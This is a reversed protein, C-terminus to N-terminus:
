EQNLAQYRDTLCGALEKIGDDEIDNKDLILTQLTKFQRANKLIPRLAYISKVTLNNERLDLHALTSSTNDKLKDSLLATVLSEIHGDNLSCCTLSLRV